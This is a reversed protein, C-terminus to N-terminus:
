CLIRMGHLESVMLGLVVYSPMYCSQILVSLKLSVSAGLSWRLLDADKRSLRHFETLRSSECHVANLIISFYGKGTPFLCIMYNFTMLLNEHYWFYLSSGLFRVKDSFFSKPSYTQNPM